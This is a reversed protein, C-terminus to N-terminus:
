LVFIFNSLLVIAFETVQLVHSYDHGGLSAHKEKVFLEIEELWRREDSTLSRSFM